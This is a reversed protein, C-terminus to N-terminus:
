GFRPIREAIRNWGLEAFLTEVRGADAGGWSLSRLDARMGPVDCVLTALERTAVARARHEDILAALRKVGRVNVEAWADLDAPVDEIRGFAGLAAAAGKPGVGPVGPLNDVTDGVIGLYDPIQAPDVGFKERVGDADVALEKALDFLTVSGDERVLQALDKDTSVVVVRCGKDALRTALTGIVDDAEYGEAELAPIGLAETADTCFGWQPELDDPVEGRQAKYEPFLENRFSEMSADFAIAVHTPEFETLYKIISNTYGYAAHTPTGDPAHMPPMSYYARFVYVPGDILHVVPGGGAM